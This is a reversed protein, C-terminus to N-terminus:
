VWMLSFIGTVNTSIEDLKDLKNVNNGLFIYTIEHFNGKM